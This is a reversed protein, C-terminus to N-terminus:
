GCGDCKSGVPPIYPSKKPIVMSASNRQFEVNAVARTYYVPRGDKIFLFTDGKKLPQPDQKLEEVKVKVIPTLEEKKEKVVKIPPEPKTAVKAAKKPKIM